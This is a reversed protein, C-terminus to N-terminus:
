HSKVSNEENRRRMETGNRETNSVARMSPPVYTGKPPGTKTFLTELQPKDMFSESQQNLDKEPCRSTWHDGKKGCSRCVM